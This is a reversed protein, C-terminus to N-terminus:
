DGAIFHTILPKGDVMGVILRYDTVSRLYDAKVYGTMGDARQVRLWTLPNGTDDSADGDVLTVVDWALTAVQTATTRPAARMAIGTGVALYQAFVDGSAPARVFYRPFAAWDDEVACGLRVIKDLEAWIPSETGRDLRWTEVFLAKGEGGGFDLRIDPAILALLRQTDRTQAITIIERTIPAYSKSAACEDRPPITAASAIAPLSVLLALTLANAKM